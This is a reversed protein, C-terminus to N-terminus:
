RRAPAAAGPPAPHAAAPHGAAPHATAPAPLRRASLKRLAGAGLTVLAWGWLLPDLLADWLNGSPLRALSFLLVAVLIACAQPRGRGHGSVAAVACAGALLVAMMPAAVPGFGAYYAGRALLGLADLYLFSGAVALLAALRLPMVPTAVQTAPQMGTWCSVLKVVCLGLLLGSPYQFALGLHWAPSAEGPLAMLLGSAGIIAALTRRPLRWAAPWAAAVLSALVLAWGVRAYAFQWSLEPLVM